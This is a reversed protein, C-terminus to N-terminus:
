NQICRMEDRLSYYIDVKFRGPLMFDIAAIVPYFLLGAEKSLKSIEKIQTMERTFNMGALLEKIELIAKEFSSIQRVEYIKYLKVSALQSDSSFRRTIYYFCKKENFVTRNFIDLKKQLVSSKKDNLLNRFEAGDKSLIYTKINQISGPLFDIAVAAINDRRSLRLLDFNLGLCKCIKKLKQIREGLTYSHHMEEFYIKFRPYSEQELWEVGITTQHMHYTSKMINLISKLMFIDYIGNFIGFVRMIKYSFYKKEGYNNYSFRMGRVIHDKFSFSFDFKQNETLLNTDFDKFLIDKINLIKRSEKSLGNKKILIRFIKDIVAIDM